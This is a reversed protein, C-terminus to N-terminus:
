AKTRRDLQFKLVDIMTVDGVLRKESDLVAIEKINKEVMRKLVGEVDQGQTTFIPHREMIDKATETTIMSLLFRPHIQPEHSRHFFHRVLNGLSITGRLRGDTDVVYLQRSHPFRVMAEIADELTSDESILPIKRGKLGELVEAIKVPHGESRRGQGKM